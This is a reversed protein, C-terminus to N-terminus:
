QATHMYNAFHSFNLCPLLDTFHLINSTLANAHASMCVCGQSKTLNQGKQSYFIHCLINVGTLRQKRMQLMDIM